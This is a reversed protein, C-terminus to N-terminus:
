PSRAPRLHHCILWPGRLNSRIMRDFTAVPSGEVSGTLLEGACLLMGDLPPCDRAFAAVAAEDGHDLVVARASPLTEQLAQARRGALILSAGLDNFLRASARGIGSGAGTILITKGALPDRPIARRPM